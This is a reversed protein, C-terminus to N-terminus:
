LMMNRVLGIHITLETFIRHYITDFQLSIVVINHIYVGTHIM